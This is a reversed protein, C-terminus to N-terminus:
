SNEGFFIKWFLFGVFFFSIVIFPIIFPPFNYLSLIFIVTAWLFGIWLLPNKKHIKWDFHLDLIHGLLTLAFSAFLLVFFFKSLSLHVSVFLPLLIELSFLSVFALYGIFLAEVLLSYFVILMGTEKLHLLREALYQTPNKM